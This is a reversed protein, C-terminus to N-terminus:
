KEWPGDKTVNIFHNGYLRYLGGGGGTWFRGERDEFVAQVAQVGLGEDKAFNTLTERGDYKYLGYGESSFWIRGASDEYVIISENNEIGNETDYTVFSKGDYRCVGGFRTSIWIDGNKDQIINNVDNNCLGNEENLFAINNGDYIAVGLGSTAMWISGDIEIYDRVCHNTFRGDQAHIGQGTFNFDVFKGNILQSLGEISSAWIQGDSDEYVSWMWEGRLGDKMTYNTFSKGDYVSIGGYTTLWIKGDKAQMVDTVQSGSLGNSQNFYQVENGDYRAVGKGNTGLWLNGEKDQFINRIYEGIQADADRDIYPVISNTPSVYPINRSEDQAKCSVMTVM